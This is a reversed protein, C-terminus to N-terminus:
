VLISVFYRKIKRFAFLCLKLPYVYTRSPWKEKKNSEINPKDTHDNMLRQQTSISKARKQTNPLMKLSQDNLTNPLQHTKMIFNMDHHKQYPGREHHFNSSDQALQRGRPSEKYAVEDFRAEFAGVDNEHLHRLASIHGVFGQQGDTLFTGTPQHQSFSFRNSEHDQGLEVDGSLSHMVIFSEEDGVDEEAIRINYYKDYSADTVAAELYMMEDRTDQNIFYLDGEESSGMFNVHIDEIADDMREESRTDGGTSFANISTNFDEVFFSKKDNEKVKDSWTVEKVRDLPIRTNKILPIQNRQTDSRYNTSRQKDNQKVHLSNGLVNQRAGKRKKSYSDNQNKRDHNHKDNDDFRRDQLFAAERQYNKDDITLSKSSNESQRLKNGQHKDSDQLNLESKNEVNSEDEVHPSDIRLSFTDQNESSHNQKEHPDDSKEKNEEIETVPKNKSSLELLLKKIEERVIIENSKIEERKEQQHHLQKGIEEKILDHLPNTIIQALDEKLSATNKKNQSSYIEDNGLGILTFDTETMQEPGYSLSQIRVNSNLEPSRAHRCDHRMDSKRETACSFEGEIQHGPGIIVAIDSKDDVIIKTPVESTEGAFKSNESVAASISNQGEDNLFYSLDNKSPSVQSEETDLHELHFFSPSDSISALQDQVRAREFMLNSKQTMLMQAGEGTVQELKIQSLDISFNDDNLRVFRKSRHTNFANGNTESLTTFDFGQTVSFSSRITQSNMPSPNKNRLSLQKEMDENARSGCSQVDPPDEAAFIKELDEKMKEIKAMNHNRPQRSQLAHVPTKDAVKATCLEQERTYLELKKKNQLLSQNGYIIHLRGKTQGNDYTEEDKQSKESDLELFLNINPRLSISSFSVMISIILALIFMLIFSSLSFAWLDTCTARVSDSYWNSVNECNMIYKASALRQSIDLFTETFNDIKTSISPFGECNGGSSLM